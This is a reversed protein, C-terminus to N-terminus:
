TDQLPTNQSEQAAHLGQQIAFAIMRASHIPDTEVKLTEGPPNSLDQRTTRYKERNGRLLLELLRDSYKRVVGVQQGQHYVPEDCGEVARRRAEFELADTATELADDWALKFDENTQRAEYITSRHLCTARIASTVSGTAALTKLFIKRKMAVIPRTERARQGTQNQRTDMM